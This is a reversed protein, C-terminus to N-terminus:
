TSKSQRSGSTSRAQHSPHIITLKQQNPLAAFELRGAVHYQRFIGTLHAKVAAVSINLRDAIVKNSRGQIVLEAIQRKRPTLCDLFTLGPFHSHGGIRSSLLEEILGSVIKRGAWLEGRLVVRVSKRLLNPSINASHYGKAGAKLLSVGNKVTPADSIVLIKTEPSLRQILALDNVVRVRSVSTHLVLIQPKLNSVAGVLATKQSVSHVPYKKQLSRGWRNALRSRNCAVLIMSNYQCAGDITM